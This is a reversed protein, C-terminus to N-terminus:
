HIRFDNLCKKIEVEFFECISKHNIICYDTFGDPIPNSGMLQPYLLHKDFVRVVL